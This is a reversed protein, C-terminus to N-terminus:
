LKSHLSLSPENCIKLQGTKEIWFELLEKTKLKAPVSGGLLQALIAYFFPVIITM